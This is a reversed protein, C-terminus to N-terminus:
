WRHGPGSPLAPPIGAGGRCRLWWPPRPLCGPAGGFGVPVMFRGAGPAWRDRREHRSDSAEATDAGPRHSPEGAWACAPLWSSSGSISETREASLEAMELSAGGSGSNAEVSSRRSYRRQSPVMLSRRRLRLGSHSTRRSKRCVTQYSLRRAPSSTDRTSPRIWTSLAKRM